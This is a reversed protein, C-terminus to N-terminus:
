YDIPCGQPPTVPTTVEEGAMAAELADVLYNEGDPTGTDTLAGTYMLVGQPSIVYMHPAAQARYARGMVGATDLLIPASAQVGMDQAMSLAEDSELYGESNRGESTITLWVIGQEQYHSQLEPIFGEHYFDQVEPCESSFWELVIWNGIYESLTHSQGAADTARFAPAAEGPIVGNAQDMASTLPAALLAALALNLATLFRKM